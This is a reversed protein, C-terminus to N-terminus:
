LVHINRTGHLIEERSFIDVICIVDSLKISIATNNGSIFNIKDSQYQFATEDSLNQSGFSGNSDALSRMFASDASKTSSHIM